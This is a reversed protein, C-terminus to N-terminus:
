APLLGDTQRAADFDLRSLGQVDHTCWRIVCCRHNLVVEPHHKLKESLWGVSNVFLLAQTHEAFEFTKEIVVADGDGQLRWGPVQGLAMVVETPTCARLVATNM